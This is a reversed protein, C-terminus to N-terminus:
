ILERADNLSPLDVLEPGDCVTWRAPHRFVSQNFPTTSFVKFEFSRDLLDYMRATDPNRMDFHEYAAVTFVYDGQNLLISDYTLRAVRTQGAALRFRDPASLHLAVRIGDLTYVYVHYQCNFDGEHEATLSFEFSMRSGAQFVAVATDDEGLLRVGGIRLGSHGGAWRSVTGSAREYAPQAGADEAQFGTTTPQSQMGSPLAAEPSRHGRSNKEQIRRDDLERIYAQYSKVVELANGRAIIQGKDMWIARKCFQLIQDTSHSVLVLTTGEKALRKMREASKSTFYADGASLVEDIILIDPKIATSTAFGLRGVMGLSYTKIPQHLFDGLEVFDVIDEIAEAIDASSLNNYILSARINEYGTFDPHFGLGMEMLSQIRGHVTVTGTTPEFNQTMLKLLTTKGAGNRGLVGLRDGRKVELSVERLAAFEPYAPPRRWFVLRQLGLLEKTMAWPNPYLKYVKSVGVFRIAVPVEPM